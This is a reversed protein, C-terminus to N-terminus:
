REWRGYLSRGSTLFGRIKKSMKYFIPILFSFFKTDILCYVKPYSIIKLITKSPLFSYYAKDFVGFVLCEINKDNDPRFTTRKFLVEEIYDDPILKNTLAKDYLETGPYFMLKHDMLQILRKMETRNTYYIEKLLDYLFSATESRESYTEFPNDSIIDVVIPIKETFLRSLREKILDANFYRRYIEKNTKKSGSQLGIKLRKLVVGHKLLIDLKPDTMKAFTANVMLPLDIRKKYQIAFEEIEEESRVFFDDENSFVTKMNSIFSKGHELEQFYSELNFTRLKNGSDKYKVQLVNNTCYACAFPCGRIPFIRYGSKSTSEELIKPSERFSILRDEIVYCHDINFFSQPLVHLDIFKGVRNLQIEGANTKYGLNDIDLFTKGTIIRNSLEHLFHEGEGLCVYNNYKLFFNPECVIPVGGWVIPSSITEKLYTTVQVARPVMHHCLISLGIVNYSQALEHLIQLRGSSIKGFVPDGDGPLYVTAVHYGKNRLYASISKVGHGFVNDNLDILLIKFETTSTQL